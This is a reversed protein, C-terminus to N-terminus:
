LVSSSPISSSLEIDSVKPDIRGRSVFYLLQTLKLSIYWPIGLFISVLGYYIAYPNLAGIPTNFTFIGGEARLEEITKKKKNKPVAAAEDKTKEEKPAEDSTPSSVQFLTTPSNRVAVQPLDVHNKPVSFGAVLPVTVQLVAFSVFVTLKM